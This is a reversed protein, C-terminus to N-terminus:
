YCTMRIIERFPGLLGSVWQLPIKDDAFRWWFAVLPEAEVGVPAGRAAAAGRSEEVRAQENFFINVSPKIPLLTEPLLPATGHLWGQM